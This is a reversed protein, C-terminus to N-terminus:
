SFGLRRGPREPSQIGAKRSDVDTERDVLSYKRVPDLEAGLYVGASLLPFRAWGHLRKPQCITPGRPISNQDVQLWARNREFDAAGLRTRVSGGHLLM